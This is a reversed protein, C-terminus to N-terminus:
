LPFDEESISSNNTGYDGVTKIKKKREIFAIQGYGRSGQGGLYDDQLLRMATSILQIDETKEEESFQNYIIEFCFQAGAPVREMQRPHEATGTTRNITNEWKIETYNSNDMISSSIGLVDTKFHQTDLLADRVIIRSTKGTKSEKPSPGFIRVIAEKNDEARELLSRLKGKLSSGPIYPIGQVDKIVAQELGGIDLANKSTGIRLGTKLEIKGTIFIKATLKETTEM